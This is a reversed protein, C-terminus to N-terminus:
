RRVALVKGESALELVRDIQKAAPHSTAPPYNEAHSRMIAFAWKAIRNTSAFIRILVQLVFFSLFLFVLLTLFAHLFFDSTQYAGALYQSATIYGAHGLIILAPLNFFLQLFFGSFRGAAKSVAVSLSDSWLASIAESIEETDKINEQADRVSPDFRGRIMAEAAEPWEKLIAIRYQRLSSEARQESGAEAVAARSTKFHMLSSAIGAIQGLPNGFRFIATMGAGFILIRAWIAILWGVPGFWRQALKQYLLVNVGFTQRSDDSKVATVAGKVAQREVNAILERAQILSEADKDAESRIENALYAKLSRANELRRDVIYATQNFSGFVVEKLQDFQDFDHRPLARRDWGPNQLHNRACTCFLAPYFDNWAKKLYEEFDPVINEKLEGEDLRDCKNLVALLADGKFLQVYPKLFDVYDRRKPNEADFLCILVDSLAIARKVMPIHKERETSDTDPTDVLIVNELVASTGRTLVDVNEGGIERRMQEADSRAGSLVMVNRTTPRRVGSESLDDVGSLANLVTSKGSGSPGILTVVLKHEFREKLDDIMKSIEGCQRRLAHAPSWLPVSELARDMLAIEGRISEIQGLAKVSLLRLDDNM